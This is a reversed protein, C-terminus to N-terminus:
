VLSRMFLQQPPDLCKNQPEGKEKLGMRKKRMPSMGFNSIIAKWTNEFHMFGM